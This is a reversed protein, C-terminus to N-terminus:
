GPLRPPAAHVHTARIASEMIGDVYARQARLKQLARQLAASARARAAPDHARLIQVVDAQVDQADPFAWTVLGNVVRDLRFSALSETVQYQTLDDLQMNNAPSCNNAGTAAITVATAVDHSAGTTIAHLATLSESVGGACSEIDTNMDSLFGRLDAAREAQSPRHVLAVLVIGVVIVAALVLLWRPTRLKPWRDHRLPIYPPDSGPPVPTTPTGSPASV